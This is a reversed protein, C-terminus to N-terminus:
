SSGSPMAERVHIGDVHSVTAASGTVIVQAWNTDSPVLAYFQVPTWDIAPARPPAFQTELLTGYRFFQIGLNAPTGRDVVLAELSLIAGPEAGIARSRITGMGGVVLLSQAGEPPMPVTTRIASRSGVAWGSPALDQGAEFGGNLSYEGVIATAPALATLGALALITIATSRM